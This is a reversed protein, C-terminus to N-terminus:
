GYRRRNREYHEVHGRDRAVRELAQVVAVPHPDAHAAHIKELHGDPDTISVTKKIQAVAQQHAAWAQAPPNRYPCCPDPEHAAPRPVLRSHLLWDLITRTDAPDLGYEAAHEVFARPPILHLHRTPTGSGDDVEQGIRWHGYYDDFEASLIRIVTV